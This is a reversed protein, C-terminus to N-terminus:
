KIELVEDTIEVGDMNVTPGLLAKVEQTLYGIIGLKRGDVDLVISPRFMDDRLYTENKLKVNAAIVPFKVKRM